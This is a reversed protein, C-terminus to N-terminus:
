FLKGYFRGLISSSGARRPKGLETWPGPEVPESSGIRIDGLEGEANRTTSLSSTCLRGDASAFLPLQPVPLALRDLLWGDKGRNELRLPSIARWPRVPVEEAHTRCRTRGAYCLEGEYTSGGFWTQPPRMLPLECLLVQENGSRLEVWLPTGVYVTVIAGPGVNFPMRPRSVVARDALRPVLTLVDADEPVKYHVVDSSTNEPMWAIDRGIELPPIENEDPRHEFSQVLWGDEKRIVFLELAGIRWYRAAEVPIQYQGWWPSREADM